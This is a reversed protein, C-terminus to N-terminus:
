QKTNIITFSKLDSLQKIVSDITMDPTNVFGYLVMGLKALLEESMTLRPSPLRTKPNLLSIRSIRACSDLLAINMHKLAPISGKYKAFNVQINHDTMVDIFLKQWKQQQQNKLKPFVILDVTAIAIGHTDPVSTCAIDKDMRAGLQQFETKAWDGMIHMAAKGEAVLRTADNWLENKTKAPLYHRLTAMITLIERIKSNDLADMDNKVFIQHYLTKGGIGAVMNAFWMTMLWDQNGIALPYYGSAAIIPAQQVVQEWTVPVTLGLKQYISLNFWAFSVNHISSPLAVIQGDIDIIDIVFDPLQKKIASIDIFQNLPTVVQLSHLYKTDVGGLWFMASPPFGASIRLLADRKMFDYDDSTTDIWKGGRRIFEESLVSLALYESQTRWFHMFEFQNYYSTNSHANPHISLTIIVILVISIQTRYNNYAIDITNNKEFLYKDIM